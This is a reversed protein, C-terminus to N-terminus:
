GNDITESNNIIIRAEGDVNRMNTMTEIASDHEPTLTSKFPKLLPKNNKNLDPYMNGYIDPNLSMWKSFFKDIVNLMGQKEQEYYKPESAKFRELFINKIKNKLDENILIAKPEKELAAGGLHRVLTVINSHITRELLSVSFPTVSTPEVYSYISDHFHSFREFHSRDRSRSIGYACFVVGYSHHERGVRSSAQIYESTTKPQGNVIMLNLRPVDIGVQVKNTAFCLDVPKYNKKHTLKNDNIDGITFNLAEFNKVLKTETEQSSLEIYKNIFRRRNKLEDKEFGLRKHYKQSFNKVNSGILTNAQNLERISNFYLVNTWYRNAIEKTKYYNDDKEEFYFSQPEQTVYSILRSLTIQPSSNATFFIGIYMRGKQNKENAFFSNGMETLQPPFINSEKGYLARIQSKSNSITATSAIIKPSISKGNIEKKSLEDIIIEFSGVMSGLKGSILHLEDQIILQPRTQNEDDSFFLNKVSSFKWPTIAFKDVTAIILSPKKKYLVDDVVYIPLNEEHFQCNKSECKFTADDNYGLIKFEYENVKVPGMQTGCWPCSLLVLNQSGFEKIDSMAKAWSKINNPSADGGVFLGISIEKLGLMHPEKRRIIEMACILTQARQFQQSTLLRLTYRMLVYNGYSNRNKLRAFFITFATLGLYAETKGGGTPFWLLDVIKRDECEELIISKLNLLIFVLQFPRWEGRGISKAYEGYDDIQINFNTNECKYNDNDWKNTTNNFGFQSIHSHCQQKLIAENMLNFAKLAKKNFNVSNKDLFNLGEKIRDLNRECSSYNREFFFKENESCNKYIDKSIEKMWVGYDKILTDRISEIRENDQSLEKMSIKYDNNPEVPKQYFKPISSTKILECTNNKNLIVETACGHGIVYSKKHRKLFSSNYLDYIYEEQDNEITNQTELITHFDSKYTKFIDKNKLSKIEINSQFFCDEDRIIFKGKDNIQSKNENVLTITLFTFKNYDKYKRGLIFLSLNDYIKPKLKFGSKNSLYSQEIKFTENINNRLYGSINLYFKESDSLLSYKELTSNIIDIVESFPISSTQNLISRLIKSGIKEDNSKAIKNLDILQKKYFDYDTGIAELVENISNLKIREFIKDEGHYSFFSVLRIFDEEFNILKTYIGINSINVEISDQDDVICTFGISSPLYQNTLTLDKVEEDSVDLEISSETKDQNINEIDSVEIDQDINIDDITEEVESSNEDEENKDDIIQKQPFLVGCSYHLRPSSNHILDNNGEFINQSLKYKNPLLNKFTDLNPGFAEDVVRDYLRERYNKETKLNPM